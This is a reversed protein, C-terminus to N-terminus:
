VIRRMRRQYRSQFFITSNTPLHSRRYITEKCHADTSIFSNCMGHELAVPSLSGALPETGLASIKCAWLDMKSAQLVSPSPFSLLSKQSNDELKVCTDQCPLGVM